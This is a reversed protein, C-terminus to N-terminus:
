SFREEAGMYPGNRKSCHERQNIGKVNYGEERQCAIDAFSCCGLGNGGWDKADQHKQWSKVM